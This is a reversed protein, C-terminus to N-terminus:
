GSLRELAFLIHTGCDLVGLERCLRMEWDIFWQRRQPDAELAAV